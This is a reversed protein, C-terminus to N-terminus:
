PTELFMNRMNYEIFQGFEMTPDGKSRSTDPLIHITIKQKGTQSTM